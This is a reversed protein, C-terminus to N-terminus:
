FPCPPNAQGPTGFDGSALADLALCWSTASDNSTADELEPHLNMAAGETLTWNSAWIVQDVLVGLPNEITLSGSTDGLALTSAEFTLSIGGNAGPSANVGFVIRDGPNMLMSSSVVFEANQENRIRIDQLNIDEGSANVVEFWEGDADNVQKPNNMIEAIVLDGPGPLDGELTCDFSCGDGSLSNEDDCEENGSIVGDGCVPCADNYAGPTGLGGSGYSSSSSCWVSGFDNIFADAYSLDCLLSAGQPFIFGGFASYNVRDIELGGFSLVIEDEEDLTFTSLEYDLIVGGNTQVDGNSGLVVFGGAPISLAGQVTEEQGGDDTLVVGTLSLNGSTPNYVEFWRGQLPNSTLPYLMIESIVLDGPNLGGEVACLPSCFEGGDCEEGSDTVGDGCGALQCTTRCADPVTDSNGAGFDCEEGQEVIGNGCVDYVTLTCDVECGDFPNLNGDDCEEGPEQEGNGCEPCAGNASGPTGFNEVGYLTSSVCWNEGADNSADDLINGDM